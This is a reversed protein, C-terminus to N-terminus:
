HYLGNIIFIIPCGLFVKFVPYIWFGGLYFVVHIWTLYAFTLLATISYGVRWSPYDHRCLYLEGLQLPVVTTHM